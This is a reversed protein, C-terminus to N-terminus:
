NLKDRPIVIVWQNEYDKLSANLRSKNQSNFDKYFCESIAM